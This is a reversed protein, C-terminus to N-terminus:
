GRRRLVRVSRLGVVAAVMAIPLEAVLALAVALVEDDGRSTMVDFWADCALAAALAGALVPTWDSRRVLAVVALAALLALGLDFGVWTLDWNRAVHERPLIVSLYVAWGPLFLATAFLVVAGVRLITVRTFLDDAAARM